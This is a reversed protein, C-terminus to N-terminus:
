SPPGSEEPQPAPAMMGQAAVLERAPGRMSPWKRAFALGGLCSILGGIAVTVPAGVRDALAGALLSGIPSMGLFMMSYLSMVRGRLQDPVMAQILTNTATFQMMMTFGSVILITFSVWFWHSFSFLVLSAGLGTAAYSVVNGLGRLQQRMALALAGFMAGVGVAGMLTGYASAGGHLIQVAFIPMLVTYPLAMFSVIAVLILLARIPKTHRAFRIGERLKELPASGDHAPKSKKLRMMFLGAIVALYSVGNLFFCWGEGVVAVLVGAIAPGAVRAGNFMSSNLAIANLLDERGVMEIMFSQRAPVDFANVIGLLTALVIIEWVRIRGTMTLAALIFALLMSSTQTAIVVRQRPWRDAVLGALPSLLFIPIQGVFGLLGLLVSSGTLRYILWSQAVTQMWTGVLSIIQGSFFLKFNRHKLARFTGAARSQGPSGPTAPTRTQTDVTTPPSDAM